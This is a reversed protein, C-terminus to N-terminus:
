LLQREAMAAFLGGANLLQDVSGSEVIRGQDVVVVRDANQITSFRHAIVIRTSGLRDVADAVEAQTANDLASTAEDLVVIAPEPVIARAIALRQRQGGSISSDSTIFTDLGAELGRLFEGAGARELATIVMDDPLDRGLTINFRLTGDFLRPQQLVVGIQSRLSDLDLTTFDHDDYFLSGNSLTEFGLLTRALTSKGAGSPGVIAVFEGPEVELSVDNLIPPLDDGVSVIGNLLAIRGTLRIRKRGASKEEPSDLIPQAEKLEREGAALRPILAGVIGAASTAQALAAMALTFSGVSVAYPGEIWVAAVILATTFTPLVSLTLALQGAILNSRSQKAVIESIVRGLRVLIRAQSNTSQIADVSGLVDTLAGEHANRAELEARVSMRSQRWFWFGVALAVLSYMIGVLGVLPGAIFLLAMSSLFFSTILLALIERTYIRSVYTSPSLVRAIFEGRSFANVPKVPLKMAKAWVALQTRYEAQSRINALRRLLQSAALTAIVVLLLLSLGTVWLRLSDGAPIIRGFVLANGIPVPLAVTAGLLVWFALSVVRKIGFDARAVLNRMVTKHPLPAVVELGMPELEESSPPDSAGHATMAGRSPVMAYAGGSMAFVVAPESVSSLWDGEISVLRTAIGRDALAARMDEINTMPPLEAPDITHGALQCIHACADSTARSVGGFERSSHGAVASFRLHDLATATVASDRSALRVQEVQRTLRERQAQLAQRADICPTPQGDRLKPGLRATPAGTVYVNDAHQVEPIVDGPHVDALWVPLRDPGVLMVMAMGRELQRGSASLIALRDRGELDLYTGAGTSM